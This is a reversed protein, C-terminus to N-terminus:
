RAEEICTRAKEAWGNWYWRSPASAVFRCWLGLLALAVTDGSLVLALFEQPLSFPWQAIRDWDRASTGSVVLTQHLTYLVEKHLPSTEPITSGIDDAHQMLASNVPDSDGRGEFLERKLRAVPGQTFFDDLGNHILQVASRLALVPQLFDELM